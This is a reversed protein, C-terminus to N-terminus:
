DQLGAEGRQQPVLGRVAFNDGPVLEVDYYDLDVSISSFSDIDQSFSVLNGATEGAERDGLHIGDRDLYIPQNGGAMFGIGTLLLGVTVMAAAAIAIGKVSKNM